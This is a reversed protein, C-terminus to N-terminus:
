ITNTLQPQDTIRSAELGLAVCAIAHRVKAEDDGGTSAAIGLPAAVWRGGASRSYVLLLGLAALLAGARGRRLRFEM